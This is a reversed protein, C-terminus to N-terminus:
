RASVLNVFLRYAGPVGAPLQRFFAYGTYIFIGKGHRAWVLGGAAPKEGPDNSSFVTKYEPGWTSAFYLGREQVWGEFDQATIRNPTTLLPSAPDAFDVPAEEVTVRDRGIELPFPAFDRLLTQDSTNYQVVLTGGSEVYDLLRKSNRKLAERSNYARVGTVIADYRSLDGAALEADEILTVRYGAQALAAPVDDGPGMIYGITEGVKSLQLRVVHATAPPYVTVIPIHPHDIVIMDRTFTRKEATFEAALLSAEPGPTVKFIVDRAQGAPLDVDHAAPDCRWGPPLALRAQGKLAVRSELRLRVPRASNDPFLYVQKDLALTVEPAICLPRYLEGRVRDVWRYVVPVTCDITQKSVTVSITVQLAPDNWPTGILAPDAVQQLGGKIPERLWYPQTTRWDLSAPVINRLAITVPRNESLISDAASDLGAPESRVGTMRLATRSRNIATVDVQISDGPSLTHQRAVAELWLGSCALIVDDLERAKHLLLPADGATASARLQALVTRARLLGPVSAAPNGPNYARYVSDLLTGVEAGGRIRKWSLDVGEFLDAKAPEGAILKFYNISTGRREPSGFGQSKHMSRSEGALETYSRGLLPNYAGLDIKLLQKAADGTPPATWNFHNWLIRKPKWPALTQLQDPFRSPDGAAEFAEVALMASATHHGHRGEGTTPFRMVIVDPRFTRIVRVVDSLVEDHGWKALTEEPSKSYGFDVARTFFQEAGDIRRAALLEQTRIVGLLDGQEDGILNQGGDGRTMSLYGARVLKENELWTLMATNEDDPHAAVYLVSGVVTLKKLALNLAAADLVAPPGDSAASPTVGTTALLILVALRIAVRM